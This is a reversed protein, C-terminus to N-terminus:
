LRNGSVYWYGHRPEESKGWKAGLPAALSDKGARMSPACNSITGWALECKEDYPPSTSGRNRADFSCMGMFYSGGLESTKEELSPPRSPRGSRAAKEGAWGSARRSTSNARALAKQLRANRSCLLDVPWGGEGMKRTWGRMEHRNLDGRM